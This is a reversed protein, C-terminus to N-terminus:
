NCQGSMFNVTELVEFQSLFEWTTVNSYFGLETNGVYRSYQKSNENALYITNVNDLVLLNDDIQALTNLINIGTMGIQNNATKLEELKSSLYALDQEEEPKAQETEIEAIVQEIASVENERGNELQALYTDKQSTTLQDTISLYDVYFDFLTLEDNRSNMSTFKERELIIAENLQNLEANVTDIINVEVTDTAVPMGTRDNATLTLTILTDETVNFGSLNVSNGTINPEFSQTVDPNSLSGTVFVQDGNLDETQFSIAISADENVEYPIVGSSVERKNIKITPAVETKQVLLNVTVTSSENRDDATLTFSGQINQTYAKAFTAEILGSNEDQEVIEIGSEQLGSIPSVSFTLEDNDADQVGFPIRVTHFEENQSNTGAVVIEAVDDEMSGNLVTIQPSENQSNVVSFTVTRDGSSNSAEAGEPDTANLVVSFSYDEQINKVSYTLTKSEQDLVLDGILESSDIGVLEYSVAINSENHAADADAVNYNVVVSENEDLNVSNGSTITLVPATNTPQPNPNEGGTETDDSSCGALALSITTALLTLRLKKNM